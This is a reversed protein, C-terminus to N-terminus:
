PKVSTGCAAPVAFGAQWQGPLWPAAPGPRRRWQLWGGGGTAAPARSLRMIRTRSPDDDSACPMVPVRRLGSEPGPEPRCGSESGSDRHSDRHSATVARAGVTVRGDHGAYCDTGPVKSCDHIM